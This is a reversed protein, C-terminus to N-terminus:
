VENGLRALHADFRQDARQILERHFRRESTGSKDGAALLIARRKPDFAFAVRRQGRQFPTGERDLVRFGPEFKDALEVAWNTQM